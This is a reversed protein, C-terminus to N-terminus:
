ILVMTGIQFDTTVLYKDSNQKIKNKIHFPSKIIKENTLTHARSYANITSNLTSKEQDHSQVNVNDRTTNQKNYSMNMLFSLNQLNQSMKYM